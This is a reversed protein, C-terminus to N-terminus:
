VHLHSIILIAEHTYGLTQYHLIFDQNSFVSMSYLLKEIRISRLEAVSVCEGM